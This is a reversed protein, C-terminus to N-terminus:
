GSPYSLGAFGAGFGAVEEGHAGNEVGTEDPARREVALGDFLDDAARQEADDLRRALQDRVDGRLQVLQADLAGPPAVLEGNQLVPRGRQLTMEPWGLITRGDYLTVKGDHPLEAERLLGEIDLEEVGARGAQGDGVIDVVVAGEGPVM